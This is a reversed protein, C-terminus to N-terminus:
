RIGLNWFLCYQHAMLNQLCSWCSKSISKILHFFSFFCSELIKTQDVGSYIFLIWQGQPFLHLHFNLFHLSNWKPIIHRNLIWPFNSPYATSYVRSGQHCLCYLIQRCHPLDLNLGPNPLNGPSPFPFGSRCEQRSFDMSLPPQHAVTWPTVFLLQM